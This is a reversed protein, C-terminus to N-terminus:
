GKKDGVEAVPFSALSYDDKFTLSSARGGPPHRPDHSDDM